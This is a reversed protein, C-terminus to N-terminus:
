RTSSHFLKAQLPVGALVLLLYKSMARADENASAASVVGRLTKAAAELAYTFALPIPTTFSVAGLVAWASQCVVQSWGDPAVAHALVAL